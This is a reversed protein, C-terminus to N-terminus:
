FYGEEILQKRREPNLQEEYLRNSDYKEMSDFIKKYEQNMSYVRNKEVSILNNQEDPDDSLNYLGIPETDNKIIIKWSDKIYTTYGLRQAIQYENIAYSPNEILPLLSKGQFQPNQRIGLFDFLTPMLDIIQSLGYVDTSKIGPLKFLLPISILEQYPKNSHNLSGHEYFEEGHDSTLIVITNQSLTSSNLLSLAKGLEYDLYRISDLYEAKLYKIHEPNNPDISQMYSDFVAKWGYFLYKASLAPNVFLKRFLRSIEDANKERNEGFLEPYESLAEPKFIEGYHNVLYEGLVKTFEEETKPAGAPTSIQRSSSMKKKKLYPFHLDATYFYLFLPQSQRSANEISQTLLNTNSGSIIRSYGKYILQPHPYPGVFITQYGNENLIQPLTVIRSDLSLFMEDWIGHSTPYLSTLMSVYSPKTLASQSIHNKFVLTNKSFFDCINPTAEKKNKCDVADARLIDADIIVVNFNKYSGKLPKFIKPNIVFLFISSILATILFSILFIKSLFIRQWRM